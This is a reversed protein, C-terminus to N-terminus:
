RSTRVHDEEQGISRGLTGDDSTTTTDAHTLAERLATTARHAHQKVTGVSCGLAEATAQESLDGLYRLAVVERQRKSLQRLAQRLDLRDALGADAASAATPGGPDPIRRRWRGIALNTTVRVVWAEDYEAIRSWRPFARALAEQALDEAVTRDGVLRFAVRYALDALVRFREDFSPITAM